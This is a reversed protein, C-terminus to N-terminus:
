QQRYQLVSYGQSAAGGKVQIAKLLSATCNACTYCQEAGLRIGDTDPDANQSVAVYNANASDACIAWSLVNAGVDADALADQASTGVTGHDFDTKGIRTNAFFIQADADTAPFFSSFAVLAVLIALTAVLAQKLM